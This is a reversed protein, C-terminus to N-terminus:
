CPMFRGGQASSMFGITETVLLKDNQDMSERVRRYVEEISLNTQVCFLSFQIKVAEGLDDIAQDIAEYDQGRRILDYAVIFCTM